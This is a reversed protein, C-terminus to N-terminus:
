LKGSEVRGIGSLRRRLRGIVRDLESELSPERYMRSRDGKCIPLFWRDRPSTKVRRLGLRERAVSIDCGHTRAYRYARRRHVRVGHVDVTHWESQTKGLHIFNSAKYIGGVHGEDPDSFSVIFRIGEHRLQKHCRALFYSLPPDARPETRALRTLCYLNSDHIPLGTLRRLSQAQYPNAGNGYVAVAYLGDDGSGGFAVCRGKPMKGSYHWRQIFPAAEAYSIRAVDM